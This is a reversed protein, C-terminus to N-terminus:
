GNRWLSIWIKAMWVKSADSMEGSSVFAIIGM